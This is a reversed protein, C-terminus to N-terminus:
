KACQCQCTAFCSKAAARVVVLLAGCLATTVIVPVSDHPGLAVAGVLYIWGSM